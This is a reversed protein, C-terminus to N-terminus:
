DGSGEQTASSGTSSPPMEGVKKIGKAAMEAAVAKMRKFQLWLSACPASFLCRRVSVFCFLILRDICLSSLLFVSFFCVQARCAVWIHDGSWHVM